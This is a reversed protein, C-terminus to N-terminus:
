APTLFGRGFKVAGRIKGEHNDGSSKGNEGVKSMVHNSITNLGM